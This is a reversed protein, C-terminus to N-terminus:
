AAVSGAARALREILMVDGFEHGRYGEAALVAPLGELVGDPAFARLLEFHSEGPQHMGTLLADVVRLRTGPGIRNTAIGDGARVAGDPEAAAELARVVTTGIAVVRGGAAKTRAIVAATGEPIRYPEDFPLRRDLAPDGTSSIGAAHTLTAFSVGRRRWAALLAWDLAFGASPPEFAVPAAAIRTWVDWLALPAPVHAYQIPKGHRALGALIRDRRGLFRLRVLQPHDLRREVVANLPGLSLHDGAALPPPAPRDETRTRHDGAGFAVAVFRTPDGAAVWGALRVEIPRGSAAHLGHLSAPLTAADNAVVLDGPALLTALAARPLHRAQGETNIACLRVAPRDARDAAIM